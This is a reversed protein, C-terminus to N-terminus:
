AAGRLDRDLGHGTNFQHAGLLGFWQFRCGCAPCQHRLDPKHLPRCSLGYCALDEELDRLIADVLLLDGAELAERAYVIRTLAESM